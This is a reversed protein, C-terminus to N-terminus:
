NTATSGGSCWDNDDEERPLAKIVRGNCSSVYVNMPPDGSPPMLCLGTLDDEKDSDEGEGYFNDCTSLLDKVCQPVDMRLVDTEEEGDLGMWTATVTVILNTISLGTLNTSGVPVSMTVTQGAPADNSEWNSISTPQFMDGIWNSFDMFTSAGSEVFAAETPVSGDPQAPVFKTLRTEISYQAGKKTGVIRVVGFAPESIRMTTDGDMWPGDVEIIQGNSNYCETEWAALRIDTLIFDFEVVDSQEFTVSFEVSREIIRPDSVVGLTSEVRYPLDISSPWAYFDFIALISDGDISAPCGASRYSRASRGSKARSIMQQIDFAKVAEDQPDPNIQELHVFRQEGATSVTTTNAFQISLTTDTM